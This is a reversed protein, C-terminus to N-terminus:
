MKIWLCSASLSLQSDCLVRSVEFIVGLSVGGGFLGCRRIRGLCNWWSPVLCEFM